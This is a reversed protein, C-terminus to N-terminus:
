RFNRLVLPLYSDVYLGEDFGMHLADLGLENAKPEFCAVLDYNKAVVGNGAQLVDGDDFSPEGDFLLETSFYMLQGEPIRADSVADLGFDVGRVPIGAPVTGPLLFENSAIKGSRM